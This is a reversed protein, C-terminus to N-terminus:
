RGCCRECLPFVSNIVLFESKNIFDTFFIETNGRHFVVIIFAFLEDFTSLDLRLKESMHSLGKAEYFHVIIATSM